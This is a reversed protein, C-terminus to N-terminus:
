QGNDWGKGCVGSRAMSGSKKKKKNDEEELDVARYSNHEEQNYSFMCNVSSLESEIVNQNM